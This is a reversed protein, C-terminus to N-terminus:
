TFVYAIAAAGVPVALFHNTTATPASSLLSFPRMEGKDDFSSKPWGVVYAALGIVTGAVFARSLPTALGARVMVGRMGEIYPDDIAAM